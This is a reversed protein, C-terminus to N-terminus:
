WSSLDLFSLFATKKKSIRCGSRTRDCHYPPWDAVSSFPGSDRSAGSPFWVYRDRLLCGRRRRACAATATTLKRRRAGIPLPTPQASQAAKRGMYCKGTVKTLDCGGNIKSAVTLIDEGRVRSHHVDSSKLEM